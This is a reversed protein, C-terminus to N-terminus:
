PGGLKNMVGNAAALTTTISIGYTAAAMVTAPVFRSYATGDLHAPEVARKRALDLTENLAAVLDDWEWSGTASAPTVLLICQPPESDPRDFNFTLGTTRSDAPVVETWEDLLLGCQNANKDFPTAYHATYLLRDGDLVSGPPLQMAAWSAAAEYPLQIPVLGPEPRGFAGALMVSTEWAHLVPRVRAAGYLWEDVPFDIGLDTVLHALLAGSTSAGMANAWEDAQATSLTFEPVIRFEEGFLARAAAQLAEARAADSAAADHADLQAQVAAARAGIEAQHGALAAALDEVFVVARDGLGSLDLPRSDFAATSLASAAALAASLQPDTTSRVQAFDHRRAVFSARRADLAVRLQDPALADLSTSVLIGAALLATLRDGNPTSPPLADYAAIRADFEALRADWRELLERVAAMLDAFAARRWDRAFGWGSAPLGLRAGLELVAIAHDVVLDIGALIAARDGQMTSLAALVAAAETGLADLAAKPGAIRDRAVFATSNQEPSAENHRTADTARLPRSRIVLTRLSRVLPAVEFVSVAGPGATRYQIQLGADPRVAEADVVFGTVRDDLETMAQGGDADLLFLVDIPALGLDALTVHRQHQAGGVPDTWAVTCGIGDLPPLVGALWADLAPEAHARPTAGPAPALGAQLHVAVRHTVAVGAAPTQVVEPEPPFQGTAYADLAAGTRDFNGQAAQHVSEALAVDAIADYLDLLANTEANIADIAPGDGPGPAPLTNLGFPYTALGSQHVQLALKRGDLVNRAEVAEIPVDPGTKTAEMGDGALPFAKRLPLIFRDVEALGHDDHLGREFRYGLLAGVSQGNRIGELTSLALRVRDSSLNVAMTQPNAPTANALYGSRLVAATRAHALSPAHIYGGNAPDSLLPTSGDFANQLDPPLQAPQAKSPRPRLDELWGYAGLYVGRRDERRARQLHCSAIGLLWADLRYTCVDVHEAFARELEATPADALLSMADLQDALGGAVGPTSLNATLYDAVLMTPSGTVQALTKYLAAYRSESPAAAGTVHVFVPEPKMAALQAPTLVGASRHLAYSADYYGLLLAHRLYLYLLTEPSADDLFGQEAQLAGVSAHAADILWRIYNREDKTCARLPDTESPPLDDVVNLVREAHHFFVHRLVDPQPGQYGLKALLNAGAAQLALAMLAQWFTPGLGGLNVINYLEVLSEASRAHFEASTAHLGVVDLLVQHADGPMGVHSVGAAMAAWDADIALLLPLLRALYALEPTTQGSLWGIRSFATTPLVGYPQGGIRIAPVAGRGSVFNTVFWRTHAVDDDSFAPHMLKDLGYGLTAPWLARQMARARAQDLGDSGRVGAFVSTDVRLSEALWQGDRKRTPDGTPTLQSADRRDDFSRDADDDETYGTGTGTTNHTPTGQRVVELGSRGARHHRLLEDLARSGVLDDASLQLGLVLLRDFGDAAQQPTLDIALGMGAAVAKPFDVMWRLEDPVFLDPGDPHIGASPDASPDPGVALPLAIPGGVAQLTLKGGSYGLVVFCEPFQEVRPARSWPDQRTPPDPAFLVFAARLGVDSREIPPAPSESLNYPVYGAALENARSAGVAKELVDRAAQWAVADDGALWVAQWYAAIADAEAQVLPTQTPIVLIVDSDAQKTPRQALNFPQYSDAIWAARGSGHAAVLGRWASREDAEVAGARWMGQWYRKANALETLSLDPEFTDISCEDPYVRVWLQPQGGAAAFRTEVRVPLLAFPALDALQGLSKRPDAYLAFAQLASAAEANAREADLRAAALADGAEAILEDVRRLEAVAVPDREDLSRALRLRTRETARRREAAREVAARALGAAARARVLQDRAAAFDASTM